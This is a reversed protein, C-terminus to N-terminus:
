LDAGKELYEGLPLEFEGTTLWPLQIAPDDYYNLFVIDNDTTRLFLDGKKMEISVGQETKGRYDEICKVIADPRM